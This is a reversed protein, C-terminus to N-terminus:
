VPTIYFVAIRYIGVVTGGAVFDFLNTKKQENRVLTITHARLVKFFETITSKPDTFPKSTLIQCGQVHPTTLDAM